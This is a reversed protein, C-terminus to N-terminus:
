WEYEHQCFDLWALVAKIQGVRYQYILWNFSTPESSAPKLKELWGQCVARQLDVLESARDKGEQRAFYYKAMFEQRM